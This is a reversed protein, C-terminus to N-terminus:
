KKRLVLSRVSRQSNFAPLKVNSVQNSVIDFKEHSVQGVLNNIFWVPKGTFRATKNDNIILVGIGVKIQNM